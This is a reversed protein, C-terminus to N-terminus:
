PIAPIVRPLEPQRFSLQGGAKNKINLNLHSGRTSESKEFSERFIDYDFLSLRELARGLM